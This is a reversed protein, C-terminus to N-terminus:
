MGQCLEFDMEFDRSVIRSRVLIRGSFIRFDIALNMGLRMVANMRAMRGVCPLPGTSVIARIAASM